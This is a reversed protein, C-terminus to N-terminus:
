PIRAKIHRIVEDARQSVDEPVRTPHDAVKRLAAVLPVLVESREATSALVDAFPGPSAGQAVADITDWFLKRIMAPNEVDLESCIRRFTRLAGPADGQATLAMAKIGLARWSVPLGREDETSEFRGVLDQYTALAEGPRGLQNQAMGKLEMALAVQRLVLTEESNGYRKVATDCTRTALEYNGEAMASGAKKVLATAVEVQIESTQDDVFRDFLDDWVARAAGLSEEALTSGKNRLSMAVCVRLEPIPSDGFRRVADDYAGIAAEPKGLKSHLYGMNLLAAGVCAQVEPSRDEAFRTVVEAFAELAARLQGSRMIAVARNTFAEAVAILGDVTGQSALDRQASKLVNLVRTQFLEFSSISIEETKGDDAVIVASPGYGEGQGAAELVLGFIVTLNSAMYALRGFAPVSDPQVLERVGEGQEAVDHNINSAHVFSSASDFLTHYDHSMDAAEFAKKLNKFGHWYRAKECEERIDEFDDSSLQEKFFRGMGVAWGWHELDEQM